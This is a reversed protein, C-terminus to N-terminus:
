GNKDAMRFATPVSNSWGGPTKGTQIAVSVSLVSLQHLFDFGPLDFISDGNLSLVIKYVFWEQSFRRLGAFLVCAFFIYHSLALHWVFM